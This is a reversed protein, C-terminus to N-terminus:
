HIPYYDHLSDTLVNDNENKKFRKIHERAFKKRQVSFYCVHRWICISLTWISHQGLKMFLVVYNFSIPVLHYYFSRWCFAVIMCSMQQPRSLVGLLLIRVFVMLSGTFCTCSTSGRGFLRSFNISLPSSYASFLLQFRGDM